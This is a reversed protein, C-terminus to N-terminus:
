SNAFYWLNPSLSGFEGFIGPGRLNSSVVELSDAMPLWIDAVQSSIIGEVEHFPALTPASREEVLLKNVTPNSYLGADDASTPNFLAGASPFLDYTWSPGTGGWTGIEWTCVPSSATVGDVGPTCQDMIGIVTNFPEQLLSIEIGAKAADSQFLEMEEVTSPSGSLFIMRLRLATGRRVGPGCRPPDECTQVGAVERWGHSALLDKADRVSYPDPDHELASDLFENGAPELPVPSYGPVGYGHLFYKIITEQDVLHQLAQRVYLQRLVAGMKPNRLNPVMFSVGWVHEAEIRYGSARVASLTPIDHLPVYGITVRGDGSNGARLADYESSTSTFPLDEFEAIKPRRGSYTPNPVFVDPSSNGGFSALRFPGDTVGWLPNHDSYTSQRAAYSDLFSLVKKAGVATEDFNGVPGHLSERDWVAQPLPIIESLNNDMYYSPNYPKDLIFRMKLPSLVQMRVGFPFLGAEYDGWSPGAAKALNVFFTIDRTTVPQGNTWKYHKLTFTVVTDHDSWVPRNAISSAYDMTPSDPSEDWLSKYMLPIFEGQNAASFDSGPIVPFIWDPSAGPQEAYRIIGARTARIVGARPNSATAGAAVGALAMGGLTLVTALVLPKQWRSRSSVGRRSGTAFPEEGARAGSMSEAGM